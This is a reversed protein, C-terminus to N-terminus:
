RTVSASVVFKGDLLRTAVGAASTIFLDYELTMAPLAATVEKPVTLSINGQPGAIVIRGDTTSAELLVTAHAHARRVQLKATYGTLDIPTVKDAMRLRLIRSLTEGQRCLVDYHNDAM